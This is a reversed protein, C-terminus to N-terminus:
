RSPLNILVKELAAKLNAANPYFFNGYSYSWIVEGSDLGILFASIKIEHDTKPEDHRSKFFRFIEFLGKEALGEASIILGEIELILVANVGIGLNRVVSFSEKGGVRLAQHVGLFEKGKERDNKLESDLVIPLRTGKSSGEFRRRGAKELLVMYSKNPDLFAGISALSSKGIAYGKKEVITGAHDAVFRGREINLPVDVLDSWGVIDTLISADAMISVSKVGAIENPRDKYATTACAFSAAAAALASVMLLKKILNKALVRANKIITNLM